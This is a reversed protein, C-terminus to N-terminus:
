TSTKEPNETQQESGKSLEILFKELEEKDLAEKNKKAYKEFLEKNVRQLTKFFDVNEQKLIKLKDEKEKVKEDIFESIEPELEDIMENIPKHLLKEYEKSKNKQQKETLELNHAREFDDVFPKSIESFFLKSKITQFLEKMISPKKAYIVEKDLIRYSLYNSNNTQINNRQVLSEFDFTAFDDIKDRNFVYQYVSEITHYDILSDMEFKVIAKFSQTKYYNRFVKYGKNIGFILSIGEKREKPFRDDLVLDSIFNDLTLRAQREGYSALIAYLYTETQKDIDELVIKGLKKQLDIKEKIASKEVKKSDVANYISDRLELKTEAQYDIFNAYKSETNLFPLKTIYKRKGVSTIIKELENMTHGNIVSLTPFYIPSYNMYDEGGLRMLAFGGLLQDFRKNEESYDKKFKGTYKPVEAEIPKDDTVSVLHNPFFASGQEINWITKTKQDGETFWIHRIRSIPLPKDLIYLNDSLKNITTNEEEPTIFVEISCNNDNIIRKTSITIFDPNVNQIDPNREELFRVPCILAQSLYHALNYSKIPIFFTKM